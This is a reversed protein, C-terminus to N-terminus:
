QVVGLQKLLPEIKQVTELLQRAYNAINKNYNEVDPVVAGTAFGGRSTLENTRVSLDGLQPLPTHELSYSLDAIQGVLAKEHDNLKGKKQDEAARYAKALDAERIQGAQRLAQDNLGVAQDKLSKQLNMANQADQQKKLAAEQDKDLTKGQRKYELQRKLTDAKEYEGKLLLRQIELEDKGESIRKGTEIAQLAKQNDLIAKKEAETLTLNQQKLEHQQKLAAAKDYEGAATLKAYDVEFKSQELLKKGAEAQDFVIQKIQDELSAVEAQSKKLEAIAALKRKESKLDDEPKKPGSAKLERDAADIDKQIGAQRSKEADILTQRNAIKDQPNTMRSLEADAKRRAAEKDLQEVLQRSQIVEARKAALAAQQEEKSRYGITLLSIREKELRNSEEQREILAAYRKISEDTKGGEAAEKKLRALREEGTMGEFSWVDLQELGRSRWGGREGKRAVEYEKLQVNDMNRVTEAIADAQKKADAQSVRREVAAYNLLKGTTKDIEAGLDGYRRELARIAVATMLMVNTQQGQAASVEHLKDLYKRAAEARAEERQQARQAVGLWMSAKSIAEDMSVTLRDWVDVSLAVTLGAAITVVGLMGSAVASLGQGIIGLGPSVAGLASMFANVAGGGKSIQEAFQKWKKRADDAKQGSQQARDGATEAGSGSGSTEGGAGSESLPVLAGQTNAVVTVSTEKPIGKIKEDLSDVSAEGEVSATVDVNTEKDLDLLEKQADRVDAHGKVKVEIEKEAPISDINEKAKRVEDSGEVKQTVTATAPRALEAKAANSEAVLRKLEARYDSGDLIAKCVTPM